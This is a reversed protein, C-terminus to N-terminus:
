SAYVLEATLSAPPFPSEIGFDVAAQMEYAKEITAVASKIVQAAFQVDLQNLVADHGSTRLYFV